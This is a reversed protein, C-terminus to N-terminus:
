KIHLRALMEENMDAAGAGYASLMTGKLGHAPVSIAYLIAEDDPDTNDDFRYFSDIHFEAPTIRRGAYEFCDSRLNFDATYGEAKLGDLAETLTDYASNM